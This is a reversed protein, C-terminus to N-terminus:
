LMQIIHIIYLGLRYQGNSVMGELATITGLYVFKLRRGRCINFQKVM